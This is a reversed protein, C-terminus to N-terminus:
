IESIEGVEAIESIESIESIEAIEFISSSPVPRRGLRGPANGAGRARRRIAAASASAIATRDAVSVGLRQLYANPNQRYARLNRPNALSILFEALPNQSRPM